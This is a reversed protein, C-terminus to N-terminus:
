GPEILGAARLRARRPRGANTAAAPPQAVVGDCIEQDALLEAVRQLFASRDCPHLPAAAAQIVALRIIRSLSIPRSPM